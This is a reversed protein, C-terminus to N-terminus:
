NHIWLQKGSPLRDSLLPVCRLVRFTMMASVALATMMQKKM